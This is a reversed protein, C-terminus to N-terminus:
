TEILHNTELRGILVAFVRATGGSSLSDPPADRHSQCAQVRATKEQCEAREISEGRM